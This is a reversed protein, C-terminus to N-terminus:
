QIELQPFEFIFSHITKARTWHCVSNISYVPTPIVHLSLLYPPLHPALKKIVSNYKKHIYTFNADRPQQLSFCLTIVFNTLLINKKKFTCVHKLVCTNQYSLHIKNAKNWILVHNRWLYLHCPGWQIRLSECFFFVKVGRIM